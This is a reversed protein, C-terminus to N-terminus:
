FQELDDDMFRFLMPFQEKFWKAWYEIGEYRGKLEVMILRKKGVYKALDDIKNELLSTQALSLESHERWSDFKDILNQLHNYCDQMIMFENQATEHHQELHKKIKELKSQIEPITFHRRHAGKEMDKLERISEQVQDDAVLDIFRTYAEEFTQCYRNGCLTYYNIITRNLRGAKEAVLAQYLTDDMGNKILTKSEYLNVQSVNFYPSLFRTTEYRLGEKALIYNKYIGNLAKENTTVIFSKVRGTPTTEIHFHKMIQFISRNQAAINHDTHKSDIIAQLHDCYTKTLMLVKAKALMMPKLNEGDQPCHITTYLTSWIVFEEGEIEFEWKVKIKLFRDKKNPIMYPTILFFGDEREISFRLNQIKDTESLVEPHHKNLWNLLNCEDVNGHPRSVMTLKEESNDM